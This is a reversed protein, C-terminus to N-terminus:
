QRRAPRMAARPPARRVIARRRQQATITRMARRGSSRSSSGLAVISISVQMYRYQMRITISTVVSIRWPRSSVSGGGLLRGLCPRGCARGRRSATMRSAARATSASHPVVAHGDVQDGGPGARGSRRHVPSPRGLGIEHELGHRPHAAGVDVQILQRVGARRRPSMIAIIRGESSSSCCIRIRAQGRQQRQGLGVVAESLGGRACPDPGPDLRVADQHLARDVAALVGGASM